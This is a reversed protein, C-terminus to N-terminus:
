IGRVWGPLLDDATQFRSWPWVENALDLGSWFANAHYMALGYGTAGDRVADPQVRELEARYDAPPVGMAQLVNGLFRNYLVGPYRHPTSADIMVELASNRYDIFRGTEFFGDASGATVIPMAFNDHTKEGSEMGWYVLSRDLYTGEEDEPVDLARVMRLFVERFFRSQAREGIRELEATRADYDGAGDHAVENHWHTYGTDTSLPEGQSTVVAVNTIGCRLAAAIVDVALQLAEVATSPPPPATPSTCAAQFGVKRELESLLQVHHELRLRDNRSLRAADGFAGSLLDRYHQHVRDVVPTRADDGSSADIGAFAQEWLVGVDGHARIPVLTDGNRAVSSAFLLDSGVGYNIGFHLSREPVSSVAFAPNRAIIQDITPLPYRHLVIGQDNAAYNGLFSGRNHGMYVAIDFGTLVNLKSLTAADLETAPARLVDSIETWGDVARAPLPGFRAMHEPVAGVGPHLRRTAETSPRAPLFHAPSMGGHDTAMAVLRRQRASQARAGRPLLSSLLPVSLTFGGAGVLFHRRGFRSSRGINAV